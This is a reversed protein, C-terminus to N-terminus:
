KSKGKICDPRCNFEKRTPGESDSVAHNEWYLKLRATTVHVPASEGTSPSCNVVDEDPPKDAFRM